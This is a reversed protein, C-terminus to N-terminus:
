RKQIGVYTCLVAYYWEEIQSVTFTQDDVINFKLKKIRVFRDCLLEALYNNIRFYVPPFSKLHALKRLDEFYELVSSGTKLYYYKKPCNKEKKKRNEEALSALMEGTTPLQFRRTMYKAYTEAQVYLLVIVEQLCRIIFYPVWSDFFSIVQIDALWFLPTYKLLGIFCM